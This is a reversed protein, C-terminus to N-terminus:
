NVLNNYNDYYLSNFPDILIAKDMYKKAFEKNGCFSYLWALQYYYNSDYKNLELCRNYLSIAVDIFIQKKTSQYKYFYIDALRAFSEPNSSDNYISGVFFDQAAPYKSTAMYFLGKKYQEKAYIPKGLAFLFPLFLLFLIHSNINYKRIKINKVQGIPVALIFFLLLMNSSIFASSIFFNYILFSICAVFIPLYFSRNEKIKRIIYYFFVALILMFLIFGFIGNECLVQLFINDITYVDINEILSYASSVTKYNNFGVGFLFNDRIVFFAAKWVLMKDNLFNTKFLLYSFVTSMLVFLSSFIIKMKHKKLFFICAAFILCAVIIALLFKTLVIASFLIYPLFKYIKKKDNWFVFSLSFSVLLFCASTNIYPISSTKLFNSSSLNFAFIYIALWLSIFVSTSIIFKKQLQDLFSVLLYIIVSSSLLFIESIANYKYDAFYYSVVANLVFLVAFINYRNLNFRFKNFFLIFIISLLAFIVTYINLSQLFCSFISFVLTLCITFGLFNFKEASFEEANTKVVM